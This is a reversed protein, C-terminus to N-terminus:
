YNVRVNYLAVENGHDIQDIRDAQIRISPVGAEDYDTLVANKFYYGPM